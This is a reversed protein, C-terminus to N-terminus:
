AAMRPLSAFRTSRPCRMARRWRIIQKRRNTLFAGTGVVLAAARERVLTAFATDIDSATRAMLVVLQLGLTRAAEHM